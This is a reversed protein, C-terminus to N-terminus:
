YQVVVQYNFKTGCPLTPDRYGASQCIGMGDRQEQGASIAAAVADTLLFEGGSCGGQCAVNFVLPEDLKITRNSEELVAGTTSEMRYTITLARVQPFRERLTGSGARMRKEGENRSNKLDNKNIPTAHRRKRFNNQM